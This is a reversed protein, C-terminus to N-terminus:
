VMAAIVAGMILFAVLQYGMNIRYLKMPRKEFIIESASTTVIFGLWTLFGVKLGGTVGVTGTMKIVWALIAAEVLSVVVMWVMAGQVGKMDKQGTLKSWQAAFLLKSYWLSGIIMNVIAAVVVAVWNLQSM